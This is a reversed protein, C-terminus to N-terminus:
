CIPFYLALRIIFGMFILLNAGPAATDGDARNVIHSLTQKM